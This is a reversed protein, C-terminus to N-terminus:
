TASSCVPTIRYLRAPFFPKSFHLRLLVDYFPASTRYKAPGLAFNARHYSPHRGVTLDTFTNYYDRKYFAKDVFSVPSSVSGSVSEELALPPNESETVSLGVAERAPSEAVFDCEAPLASVGPPWLGVSRAFDPKRKKAYREFRGGGLRSVGSRLGIGEYRFKVGPAVVGSNVESLLRRHGRCGSIIAKTLTLLENRELQGRYVKNVLERIAFLREGRRFRVGDGVAPKRKAYREFRGGGLRSVGRRLRGGGGSAASWAAPRDRRGWRGNYIGYVQFFTQELEGLLVFGKPLVVPAFLGVRDRPVRITFEGFRGRVVKRAFGNRWVKRGAALERERFLAFEAALLAELLTRVLDQCSELPCKRTYINM